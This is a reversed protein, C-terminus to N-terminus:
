GPCPPAEVGCLILGEQRRLSDVYLSRPTFGLIRDADRYVGPFRARSFGFRYTVCGGRFRFYSVSAEPHLATPEDFREVGAPGNPLEVRRARSVDCTASLMLEVAKDGARESDLSATVRSSRVDSAGFRWGVPLPLFCPIQTASPVAQAVLLFISADGSRCALRDPHQSSLGFMAAVLVALLAGRLAVGFWV